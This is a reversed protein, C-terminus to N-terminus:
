QVRYWASSCDNINVQYVADVDISFNPPVPVVYRHIFHHGGDSYAVVAFHRQVSAALEARCDKVSHPIPETGVDAEVVRAHRWGRDFADKM